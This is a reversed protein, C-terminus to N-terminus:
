RKHKKNNKIDNRKKERKTIRNVKKSVYGDMRLAVNFDTDNIRNDLMVKTSINRVSNVLNFGLYMFDSKIDPMIDGTLYNLIEDRYENEYEILLMNIGEESIFVVDDITMLYYGNIYEDEDIGLIYLVNKLEYWKYGLDDIFLSSDVEFLCYLENLLIELTCYKNNSNYM